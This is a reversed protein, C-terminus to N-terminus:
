GLRYIVIKEFNQFRRHPKLSVKCLVLVEICCAGDLSSMCIKCICEFSGCVLECNSMWCGNADMFFLKCHRATPMLVFYLWTGYFCIIFIITVNSGTRAVFEYNSSLIYTLPVRASLLQVCYEAFNIPMSAHLGHASWVWWMLCNTWGTCHFHM